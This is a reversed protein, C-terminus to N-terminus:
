SCICSNSMLDDFPDLSQSRIKVNEKKMLLKLEPEATTEISFWNLM